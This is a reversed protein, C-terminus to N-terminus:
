PGPIAKAARAEFDAVAEGPTDGFGSSFLDSEAVVAWRGDALQLLAARGAATDIAIGASDRMQPTPTNILAAM